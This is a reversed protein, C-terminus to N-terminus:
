QGSLRYAWPARDFDLGALAAITEPSVYLPERELDEPGAIIALAPQSKEYAKGTRPWDSQEVTEFALRTGSLTPVPTPELPPPIVQQCASWVVLAFCALVIGPVSKCGTIVSLCPRFKSM